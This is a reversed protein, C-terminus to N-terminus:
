KALVSRPGAKLRRPNRLRGQLGPTRPSLALELNFHTFPWDPSTVRHIQKRAIATSSTM